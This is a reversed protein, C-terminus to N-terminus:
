SCLMNTLAPNSGVVKPNRTLEKIWQAVCASEYPAVDLDLAHPVLYVTWGTVVYGAGLALFMLSLCHLRTSATISRCLKTNSSESHEQQQVNTEKAVIPRLTAGSVVLHSNLGAIILLAGRWGYLDFLFQTVLPMIMISIGISSHVFSVVADYYKDFYDSLVSM